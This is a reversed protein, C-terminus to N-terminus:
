KDTNQSKPPTWEDSDGKLPQTTPCRTWLGLAIAITGGTLALALVAVVVAAIV